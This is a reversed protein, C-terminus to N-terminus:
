GTIPKQVYKHWRQLHPKVGEGGGGDRGGELCVSHPIACCLVWLLQLYECLRAFGWLKAIIHGNEWWLLGQLVGGVGGVERRGLVLVCSSTNCLVCLLEVYGYLRVFGRVYAIADEEKEWCM